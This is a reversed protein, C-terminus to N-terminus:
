DEKDLLKILELILDYYDDPDFHEEMKKEGRADDEIFKLVLLNYTGDVEYRWHPNM